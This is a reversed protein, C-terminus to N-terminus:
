KEQPACHYCRRRKATGTMNNLTHGCELTERNWIDNREPRMPVREVVKRFPRAYVKEMLQQHHLLTEGYMFPM